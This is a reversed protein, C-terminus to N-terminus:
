SHELRWKDKVVLRWTDEVLELFRIMFSAGCARARCDTLEALTVDANSGMTRCCLSRGPMRRMSLAPAEAWSTNQSHHGGGRGKWRVGDKHRTELYTFCEICCGSDCCASSAAFSSGSAPYASRMPSLAVATASVHLTVTHASSCIHTVGVREGQLVTVDQAHVAGVGDLLHGKDRGVGDLQLGEGEAAERARAAERAEVKQLRFRRLLGLLARGRGWAGARKLCQDLSMFLYRGNRTVPLLRRNMISPSLWTSSLSLSALSNM